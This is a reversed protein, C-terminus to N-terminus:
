HCLPPGPMVPFPPLHPALHIGPARPEPSAPKAANKSSDSLGAHVCFGLPQFKNSFNLHASYLRALFVGQDELQPVTTTVIIGLSAGLPAWGPGPSHSGPDSPKM